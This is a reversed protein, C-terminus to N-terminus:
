ILDLWSRWRSVKRPQMSQNLWVPEFDERYILEAIQEISLPLKALQTSRRIIYVFRRIILEDDPIPGSGNWRELSDAFDYFSLAGLCGARRYLIALIVAFYRNHPCKENDPANFLGARFAVVHALEHLYVPVFQIHGRFKADMQIGSLATARGGIPNGDRDRLEKIFEVHYEESIGCLHRLEDISNMAKRTLQM